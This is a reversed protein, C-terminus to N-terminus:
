LSIAWGLGISITPLATLKNPSCQLRDICHYGSHQVPIEAGVGALLNFGRYSRTEYTLQPQVWSVRDWSSTAGFLAGHPEGAPATYDRFPGTSYALELGIAHLRTWRKSVFVLPRVRAFAAVQLGSTNAGFGVGLALRNLVDYSLTAGALGVVTAFGTRVEFLMPRARFREDVIQKRLTPPTRSEFASDSGFDDPLSGAAAPAAARVSRAMLLPAFAALLLAHRAGV